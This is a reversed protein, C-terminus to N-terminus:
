KVCRGANVTYQYVHLRPGKNPFRALCRMCTSDRTGPPPPPASPRYIPVWKNCFLSTIPPTKSMSSTSRFHSFPPVKEVPTKSITNEHIQPVFWTFIPVNLVQFPYLKWRSDCNSFPIIKFVMKECPYGTQSWTVGGRGPNRITDAYIVRRSWKCNCICCSFIWM